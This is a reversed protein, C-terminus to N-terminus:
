PVALKECAKTASDEAAADLLMAAACLALLPDLVPVLVVAVAVGLGVPLLKDTIHFGDRNTVGIGSDQKKTDSFYSVFLVAEYGAKSCNSTNPNEEQELLHLVPCSEHVYFPM